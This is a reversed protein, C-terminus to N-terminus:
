CSSSLYGELMSSVESFSLIEVGVEEFVWSTLAGVLKSLRWTDKRRCSLSKKEYSTVFTRIYLNVCPWCLGVLLPACFFSLCLSQQGSENNSSRPVTARGFRVSCTGKDRDVWSTWNRASKTSHLLATRNSYWTGGRLNLELTCMYRMMIMWFLDFVMFSAKLNWFIKRFYKWPIYFQNAIFKGKLPLAILWSYKWSASILRM